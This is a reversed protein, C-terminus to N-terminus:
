KAVAESTGSLSPIRGGPCMRVQSTNACPICLFQLPERTCNFGITPITVVKEGLKMRYLLATKGSADLGTILCRGTPGQAGYLSRLYSTLKSM